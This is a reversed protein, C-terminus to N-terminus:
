TQKGEILQNEAPDHDSKKHEAHVILRLRHRATALNLSPNRLAMDQGNGHQITATQLLKLLSNTRPIIQINLYYRKINDKKVNQVYSDELGFM